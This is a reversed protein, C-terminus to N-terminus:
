KKLTFPMEINVLVNVPKGDKMAPAFRWRRVAKIAEQDLGLTSDLSTVIKPDSVTGNTLVICELLVNGEIKARKADETYQPRVERLVRPFTVGNGPRYVTRSDSQQGGVTVANVGSVALVAFVALPLRRLAFIRSASATPVDVTRRPDATM